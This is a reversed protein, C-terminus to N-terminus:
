TKLSKARTAAATSHSSPAPPCPPRPPAPSKQQVAKKAIAGAALERNALTLENIQRRLELLESKDALRENERRLQALREREKSVESKLEDDSLRYLQDDDEVNAAGGVAANASGAASADPEPQLDTYVQIDADSM